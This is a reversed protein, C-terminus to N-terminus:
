EVVKLDGPPGHQDPRVEVDGQGVARVARVVRLHDGVVAADAGRQRGQRVQAVVARLDDHDGVQTPRLALDHGLERQLRDGVPEALQEVGVDLHGIVDGARVRPRHGRRQLGAVHQQQLVDPEVRALGALDGLLTLGQGGFQRGQGVDVHGVAEPDHVAVLRRDGIHRAQQGVGGAAEDVLLRRHEALDHGVGRTREDHDEAAGLDAVLEPTM